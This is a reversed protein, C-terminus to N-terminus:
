WELHLRAEFKTGRLFLVFYVDGPHEQKLQM